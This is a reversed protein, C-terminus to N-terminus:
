DESILQRLKVLDGAAPNALLLPVGKTAAFRQAMTVLAMPTPGDRDGPEVWCWALGLFWLDPAWPFPRPELGLSGLIEGEVTAVPAAGVHFVRLIWALAAAEHAEPYHPIEELSRALIEYIAVVDDPRALRVLITRAPAQAEATATERERGLVQGALDVLQAGPDAATPQLPEPEISPAAPASDFDVPATQATDFDVAGGEAVAQGAIDPEPATPTPAEEGGPERLRAVDARTMEPRIVGEQIGHLFQDNSLQMLESLTRWSGPLIAAIDPATLRPDRAIAMLRQATRVGFPLDSKVLSGFEGNAVREKAEILARGTALVGAVTPRWADSIRAAWAQQATLKPELPTATRQTAGNVPPTAPHVPAQPDAGRDPEPHSKVHLM